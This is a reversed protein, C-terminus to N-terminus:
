PTGDKHVFQRDAHSSMMDIDSGAALDRLNRSGVELYVAM